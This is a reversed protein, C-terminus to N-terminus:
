HIHKGNNEAMRGFWDARQAAVAKLLKDWVKIDSKLFRYFETGPLSLVKGDTLAVATGQHNAFVKLSSWGIVDGANQLTFAQGTKFYVMFSGSVIVYCTTAPQGRKTLVEGEKISMPRMLAAIKQIEEAKFDEFLKMSELLKRETTM